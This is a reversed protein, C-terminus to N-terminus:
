HSGNTFDVQGTNHVREGILDFKLSGVEQRDVTVVMEMRRNPKFSPRDLHIRQLFTKQHEDNVFTSMDQIFHRPGDEIDYFLAHFELDGPARNFVLVLNADWSRQAIPKDTREQLRRARHRRAFGILGHESTHHPIRAQTLYISARLRSQASGSRPWAGVALALAAVVAVLAVKPVLGSSKKM